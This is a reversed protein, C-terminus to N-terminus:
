KIFYYEIIKDQFILQYYNYNIIKIHIIKKDYLANKFSKKFLLWNCIFLQVIKM